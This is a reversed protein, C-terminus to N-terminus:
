GKDWSSKRAFSRGARRGGNSVKGPKAGGNGSGPGKEPDRITVTSSPPARRKVPKPRKMTPPEVSMSPSEAETPSTLREEHPLTSAVPQPSSGRERGHGPVPELWRCGEGWRSKLPRGVESQGRCGVRGAEESRDIQSSRLVLDTALGTRWLVM